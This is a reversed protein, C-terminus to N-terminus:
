IQQKGLVWGKFMFFCSGCLIMGDVLPLLLIRINAFQRRYLVRNSYLSYLIILGLALYQVTNDPWLLGLPIINKITSLLFLTQLRFIRFPGLHHFYTGLAESLQYHKKLLKRIGFGSDLCHLHEVKAAVEKIELNLKKIRFLLDTDEGATRYDRNNFGKLHHRFMETRYADCKGVLAAYGKGLEQSFFSKQWFSYREWTARGMFIYPYQALLEPNQRFGEAFAQLLGRDTLVMDQHILLFCPSRVLGIGENYSAALGKSAQHQIVDVPVPAHSKFVQCLSLSGDQSGDDILIIRDVRFRVEEQAMISRFLETLTSEGNHIPVILTFLREEDMITM